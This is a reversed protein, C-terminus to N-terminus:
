AGRENRIIGNQYFQKARGPASRARLRDSTTSSYKTTHAQSVARATEFYRQKSLRLRDRNQSCLVNICKKHFDQKRYIKRETEIQVPFRLTILLLFTNRASCIHVELMLRVSSNLVV